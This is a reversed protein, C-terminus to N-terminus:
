KLEDGKYIIRFYKINSKTVFYCIDTYETNEERLYYGANLKQCIELFDKNYFLQVELRYNSHHLYITCGVDQRASAILTNIAEMEGVFKEM